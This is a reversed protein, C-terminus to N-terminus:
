SNTKKFFRQNEYIKKFLIRFFDALTKNEIVVGGKKGQYDILFVKNGYINMGGRIPFENFDIFVNDKLEKKSEKEYSLNRGNKSTYIIKMRIRKKLRDKKRKKLKDAIGSENFDDLPLFTYIIGDKKLTDVFDEYVAKLGEIGEYYRVVPKGKYDTYLAMLEPLIEKIQSIKDKLRKEKEKLIELIRDPKEAVYFTKKGEIYTSILGLDILNEIVVYTTARKVNAKQSIKQVTSPGIELSALYVKTEKESIGVEELKKKLM